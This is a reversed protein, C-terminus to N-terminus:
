QFWEHGLVDDISMRKGVDVELMGKLLNKVTESRKMSEILPLVNTKYRHLNDKYTLAYYIVAGLSWVDSKQHYRRELIEPPCYLMTGYLRGLTGSVGYQASEFDLLLLRLPSKELLLFNEMKIDLHVVNNDHCVKICKAMELIYPVLIREDPFSDWCLYEFLDIANEHYEMVLYTYYKPFSPKNYIELIKVICDSEIGNPINYESEKLKVRYLRKCVFKKNDDLRLILYVKSNPGEFMKELIKYKKLFEGFDLIDM